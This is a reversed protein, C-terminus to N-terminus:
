KKYKEIMWPPLQYDVMGDYKVGEWGNPWWGKMKGDQWQMTMGTAYGPGFVIDHNKDFKTKASAVTPSEFKELFLVIKETDVAGVEEIAKALM